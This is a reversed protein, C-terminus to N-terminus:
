FLTKSVVIAIGLLSNAYFGIAAICDAKEIFLDNKEVSLCFTNIKAKRYLINNKASLFDSTFEKSNAIRKNSVKIDIIIVTTNKAFFWM